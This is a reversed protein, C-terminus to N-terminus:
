EAQSQSQSLHQDLAERKEQHMHLVKEQIEALYSGRLPYWVLLLAGLLCSLGPILGTFIKIGM